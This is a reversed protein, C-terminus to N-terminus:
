GISSEQQPKSFQQEQATKKSDYVAGMTTGNKAMNEQFKAFIAARKQAEENEMKHLIESQEQKHQEVIQDLQMDLEKPIFSAIGIEAPMVSKNKLIRYTIESFPRYIIDSPSYKAVTKESEQISETPYNMNKFGYAMSFKQQSRGKRIETETKEGFSLSFEKADEASIGPFAIQSRANSKVISLFKKGDQGTAIHELGQSALILPSRYSRGQAFLEKMGLNSYNQFEDIYIFSPKRTSEKGPRRFVASQLSLIMFYGLYSGLERLEGQATSIALCDGNRLVRDFDIDSLGNEPCLVKRLYKNQILKAIQTRVGSTNEWERSRDNYYKSKFWDATDKNQQDESANYAPLNYFDDVMNLGKGDTNQVIDALTVLTAPKSSIGTKPDTYALELRKIVMLANRILNDNMDKFYTASDPTMMNFTTTMTEIVTDEKGALPNFTPCTPDIPNFYQIKTGYLKGMAYVKEVLDGKPEMVIVSHHKQIDQLIMPILIQSTKGCGTPGICLMHTYRANEEMIVDEGTEKNKCIVVDYESPESPKGLNKLDKINFNAMTQIKKENESFLLYVLVFFIIVDFMCIIMNPINIGKESQIKRQIMFPLYLGAILITIRYLIFTKRIGLNDKSLLFGVTNLVLILALYLFPIHAGTVLFLFIASPFVYQLIDYYTETKKFDM